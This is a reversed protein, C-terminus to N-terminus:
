GVGAGEASSVQSSFPDGAEQRLLYCGRFGVSWAAAYPFAEQSQPVAHSQVRSILPSLSPAQPPEGPSLPWKAVGRFKLLCRFRLWVESSLWSSRFPGSGEKIGLVEEQIGRVRQWVGWEEGCVSFPCLASCVLCLSLSLSFSTASMLSGEFFPMDGAPPAFMTDEGVRPCYCKREEPEKHPYLSMSFCIYLHAKAWSLHETLAGKGKKKRQRSSSPKANSQPRGEWGLVDYHSLLSPAFLLM